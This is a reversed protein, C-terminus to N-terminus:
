VFPGPQSPGPQAAQPSPLGHTPAGSTAFGSRTLMADRERQRDTAERLFRTALWGSPVLTGSFLLWSWLTDVSASGVPFILLLWWVLLWDPTPLNAITTSRPPADLQGSRWIDNAIQKPRWLNFIPVFWTWIAQGDSFRPTFGLAPLNAHARRMWKIFTVMSGIFPVLLLVALTSDLGGIGAAEASPTLDATVGYISSLYLYELLQAALVAVCAWLWVTATRARSATDHFPPRQRPEPSLTSPRAPPPTPEM